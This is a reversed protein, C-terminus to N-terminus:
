LFQTWAPAHWTGLM